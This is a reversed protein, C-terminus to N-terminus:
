VESLRKTRGRNRSSRADSGGPFDTLVTECLTHTKLPSRRIAVQPFTIPEPGRASSECGTMQSLGAVAVRM